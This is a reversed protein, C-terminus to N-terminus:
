RGAGFSVDGLRCSGNLVDKALDSMGLVTANTGPSAPWPSPPYAVALALRRRGDASAMAVTGYGPVDGVYGNYFGNTCADNWQYLGLGYETYVPPQMEAVLERGLLRGDLLADFFTNLDAVTSVLGTAASGSHLAAFTADVSEGDALTYGHVMGEPAPGDDALRTDALGLPQIIDARLVEALPLGRLREVMLGLAIYNSHSYSFGQARPRQWPVTAALALKQEPSLRTALAQRPPVSDLLPGYYDPMGSTHGLLRRVTNPEPQHLLSELEPLYTSAPEDLSLRGEEALKLVSVAVLTQTIDGVRVPDTVQAAEGASNRVGAAHTWVEAGVHLELLVAPAGADILERSYQELEAKLEPTPISPPQVATSPASAPPPATGSPPPPPPLPASTPAAPEALDPGPEYTCGGLVVSSAVVAALAAARIWSRGDRAAAM